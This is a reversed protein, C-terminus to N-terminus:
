LLEKEMTCDAELSTLFSLQQPRARAAAQQHSHASAPPVVLEKAEDSLHAPFQVRPVASYLDRVSVSGTCRHFLDPM